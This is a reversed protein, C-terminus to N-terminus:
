EDSTSSAAAQQQPPQPQPPQPQPQQRSQLHIKEAEIQLEKVAKFYQREKNALDLYRGNLEDYREKEQDHKQTTQGLSGSVSTLLQNIQTQFAERGAKSRVAQKYQQEISELIKVEKSLYELQTDLTNYTAFYTRTETLRRAVLDYLELFQQQYQQLETRSPIADIKRKLHAILRKIKSDRKKLNQLNRKLEDYRNKIEMDEASMVDEPKLSRTGEILGTWRRRETEITAAFELEQQKLAEFISVLKRLLQLTELNEPTELSALKDLQDQIAQNSQQQASFQEALEDLKEKMQGFREEAGATKEQVEELQEQRKQLARRHEREAMDEPTLDSEPLAELHEQDEKVLALVEELSFISGLVGGTVRSGARAKAMSKMIEQMRAEEEQRRKLEVAKEDEDAEEEVQAAGLTAAIRSAAAGIAKSPRRKERGIHLARITSGSLDGYELLTAQIRDDEPVDSAATNSRFTRRPHYRQQLAHSYQVATTKRDQFSLDAPTQNTPTKSFQYESFERLLDGMDQRTEIVKAILWQIVPFITPFNEGRIEPSSIPHPCKMKRLVMVLKDALAIKQGISPNEQYFIDVDVDVASSTVAWTLGGIVKDFRSLGNIRARFYGGALLLDIIKQYAAERDEELETVDSVGRRAKETTVDGTSGAIKGGRYEGFM